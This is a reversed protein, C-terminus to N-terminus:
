TVTTYTVAGYTLRARFLGHGNRDLGLLGLGLIVERQGPFDVDRDDAAAEGAQARRNAELLFAVLVEQHDLAPLVYAPGPVEVGIGAAGTVDGRV